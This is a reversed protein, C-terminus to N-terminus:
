LIEIVVPEGTSELIFFINRDLSISFQEIQECYSPQDIACFSIRHPIFKCNFRSYWKVEVSHGDEFLILNHPIMASTSSDNCVWYGNSRGVKFLSTRIKSANKNLARFPRCNEFPILDTPFIQDFTTKQLATFQGSVVDVYLWSIPKNMVKFFIRNQHIWFEISDTGEFVLDSDIQLSDLQFPESSVISMEQRTLWFNRRQSILFLEGIRTVLYSYDMEFEPCSLEAILAGRDDNDELWTTYNDKSKHFLTFDGFHGVEGEGNQDNWVIIEDGILESNAGLRFQHNISSVIPKNKDTLSIHTMGQNGTALFQTCDLWDECITVKAGLSTDESTQSPLGGAVDISVLSNDELLLLTSKDFWCFKCGGNSIRDVSYVKRSSETSIDFCILPEPQVFFGRDTDWIYDRSIIAYPNNSALITPSRINPINIMSIINRDINWSFGGSTDLKEENHEPICILISEDIFESTIIDNPVDLLIFPKSISDIAVLVDDLVFVIFKSSSNIYKWSHTNDNLQKIMPSFAQIERLLREKISQIRGSQIDLSLLYKSGLSVIICSESSVLTIENKEISTQLTTFDVKNLNSADYVALNVSSEYSSIAIVWRNKWAQVIARDKRVNDLRLEYADIYNTSKLVKGTKSCLLSLSLVYYNSKLLLTIIEDSVDCARIKELKQDDDLLQWEVLLRREHLQHHLDTPNDDSLHQHVFDPSYQQLSSLSCIPYENVILVIDDQLYRCSILGAPEKYSWRLIAENICYSLILKKNHDLILMSYKGFYISDISDFEVTNQLRGNKPNWSFLRTKDWTWICQNTAFVGSEKASIDASLNHLGETKWNISFEDTSQPSLLKKVIRWNHLNKNRWKIASTLILSDGGEELALQLLIRHAPWASDGQSLIHAIGAFFSHWSTSIDDSYKDPINNFNNILEISKNAACTAMCFGFNTILRKYERFCGAEKLHWPQEIIRRLAFVQQSSTLDTYKFLDDDHPCLEYFSRALKYHIENKATFNSQYLQNIQNNFENHFFKYVFAGEVNMETLYPKLDSFLRSWYIPPLKLKSDWFQGTKQTQLNFESRVDSDTALVYSIEDESLGSRSASLYTLAKRTFVPPHRQQKILRKSIFNIIMSDLTIPLELYLENQNSDGHWSRWTCAHEFAFKLWLPNGIKEFNNLVAERQSLTIRRKEHISIVGSSFYEKDEHFWSDLILNGDSKSMSGIELLSDGFNNKASELIKGERTSIILKTWRSLSKPLWSLEWAEKDQGLQDLSDIFVILPKNTNSMSLAKHFEDIATAINCYNGSDIQGYKLAIESCLSKLLEMLNECGRGGGIFRAATVSSTNDSLVELFLKSVLSSKGVGGQGYIILPFDNASNIYKNVHRQESIRGCFKYSRNIAFNYHSNSDSEYNDEQIKLEKDIIEIQSTLFHECFKELYLLEINHRSDNWATSFTWTRKPLKQELELKLHRISNYANIDHSDNVHDWDIFEKALHNLPLGNIQRIYVSVHDEPKFRIKGIISDNLAGIFIEQHTASAFYPLRETVHFNANSVCNRLADQLQNVLTNGSSGTKHQYNLHYVPPDLNLDPGIYNKRIIQEQNITAKAILRNWHSIPIQAPIPQWGYRDGLLIAFNPKPSLSQCRRIEELCIRLTDHERQAEETIGWRLDVAQFSSGRKQCYEELKPFVNKQLAEREASFDSFTSSLFLRFIRKKM